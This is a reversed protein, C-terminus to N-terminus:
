RMARPPRWQPRPAPRITSTGSETGATGRRGDRWDAAPRGRRDRRAVERRRRPARHFRETRMCRTSRRSSRSSRFRPRAIPPSPPSWRFSTRRCSRRRPVPSRRSAGRRPQSLARSDSAGARAGGVVIPEQESRLEADAEALRPKLRSGVHIPLTVGLGVQWMPDLSGRYMPGGSAVFDPLFEKKTLSGPLSGGRNRSRPRRAGSENASRRSCPPFIRSKRGSSWASTRRSRETRRAASCGISSRGGTPSEPTRTPGPKTWACSRSRLACFTRSSASASRTATAPSTRFDGALFPRTGRDARAARPRCTSTTPAACGHRLPSGPAGWRDRGVEEARLEAEEGALRLKGPWPLPQAFMAGLFTM